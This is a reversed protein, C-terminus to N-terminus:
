LESLENVYFEWKRSDFEKKRTKSYSQAPTLFGVIRQYTDTIEGGCIPCTKDMFGHNNACVNIKTNFAFYIVGSNAINNLAEWALEKTAFPAGINIHSIQGGGCKKDLEAGLRLKEQISCSASM